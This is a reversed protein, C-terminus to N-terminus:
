PQDWDVYLPRNMWPLRIVSISWPLRQLLVDVGQVEMRLRLETASETLVGRRQLFSQQLSAPTTSGLAGWHQIVSSLLDHLERHIEDSLPEPLFMPQQHPEVGLLVKCLGLDFEHPDPSPGYVLNHLVCAAVSYNRVDLEGADSWVVGVRQLLRLIWPHLLVLGADYFLTSAVAPLADDIRLQDPLRLGADGSSDAATVRRGRFPSTDRAVMPANVHIRHRNARNDATLRLHESLLDILRQPMREFSSSVGALDFSRITAEGGKGLSVLVTAAALRLKSDSVEQWRPGNCFVRPDVSNGSLWEVVPIRPILNWFRVSVAFQDDISASSQSLLGSMASVFDQFRGRVFHLLDARQWKWCLPTVGTAIWDLIRPIEVLDVLESGYVSEEGTQGFACDASFRDALRAFLQALHRKLASRFVDVDSVPTTLRVSLRPLYVVPQVQVSGLAESLCDSVLSVWERSKSCVTGVSQANARSAQAIMRISVRRIVNM